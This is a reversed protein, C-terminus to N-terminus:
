IYSQCYHKIYEKSKIAPVYRYKIRKLTGPVRSRQSPKEGNVNLISEDTYNNARWVKKWIYEGKDKYTDPINFKIEIVIEKQKIVVKLFCIHFIKQFILHLQM